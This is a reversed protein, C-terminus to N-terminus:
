KYQWTDGTELVTDAGEGRLWTLSSMDGLLMADWFATSLAKVISHHAPNRPNQISNLQRDTFAHHEGEFLVLEYFDGEPLASFVALRGDVSSGVGAVPADDKTGTMLLWPIDVSAFAAEPDGFSPLSPSLATAAKIRPDRTSSATTFLTQGSVAQTTAAGFSHGSMGVRNLDLKQYLAHQSDTNWIELQDLVVSVDEIRATSNELSAASTFSELIQSAPVDFIAEDSGAHQMSVVTYGRASWQEFLYVATFRAGGLGHSILIVPSSGFSESSYILVPINRDRGADYVIDDLIEANSATLRLPDYDSISVVLPAGGFFLEDAANNASYALYFNLKAGALDFVGFSAQNLIPILESAALAAASKAAQLTNTQLDWPLYTGDSVRMFFQGSIEAIIYIEGASGVQEPEVQIEATVDIAEHSQFSSKFTLAGDRTAGGFFRASTAAGSLTSPLDLEPLNAAFVTSLWLLQGVALWCLNRSIRIRYDCPDPRMM